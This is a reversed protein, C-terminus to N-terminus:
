AALQAEVRTRVARLASSRERSLTSPHLGLGAAVETLTEGGMSRRLVQRQRRPLAEISDEVLCLRTEKRLREVWADRDCVEDIITDADVDAVTADLRQRARLTDVVDGHLRRYLYASLTVRHPEWHPLHRTLCRLMFAQLLDDRDAADFSIMRRTLSGIRVTTWRILVRSFAAQVAPTARPHRMLLGLHDISLHSRPAPRTCM